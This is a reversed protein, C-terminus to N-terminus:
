LTQNIFKPTKWLVFNIDHYINNLVSIRENYYTLFMM